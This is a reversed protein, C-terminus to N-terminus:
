VLRKVKIIDENYLYTYDIDLKSIIHKKILGNPGIVLVNDGVSVLNYVDMVDSLKM